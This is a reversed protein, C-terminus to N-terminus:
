FLLKVAAIATLVMVANNFARQPIVNFLARGLMVGALLLPALSLNFRLSELTILPQAPNDWTLFLMLPLKVLNFIFFYSAATGILQQKPMGTAILYIQMVPGAANSVMTSFGAVIGTAATGERSHPVLRDGLRGRLLTLGIMLLVIGGIIPNLPDTWTPHNGLVKLLATGVALGILVWPLLKRVRTWDCHARYFGVAFCDSFILMPLTAGVGLRGPLVYQMLTVGLIGVGPVGTKSFGLILAAFGAVVWQALTLHM